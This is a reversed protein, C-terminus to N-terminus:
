EPRLEWRRHATPVIIRKWMLHWWKTPARMLDWVEMIRIWFALRNVAMSLLMSVTSNSEKRVVELIQFIMLWSCATRLLMYSREPRKLVLVMHCSKLANTASSSCDFCRFLNSKHFICHYPINLVVRTHQSPWNIPFICADDDNWPCWTQVLFHMRATMFDRWERVKRVAQDKKEVLRMKFDYSM